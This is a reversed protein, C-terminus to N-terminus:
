ASGVHYFTPDPARHALFAQLRPEASFRQSAGEALGLITRRAEVTAVDLGLVGQHDPRAPEDIRLYRSGLQQEMVSVTLQQQVAIMTSILRSDTMWQVAGFQRGEAHSLAFETTTTGLSLVHIDKLRIDLNCVAEHVGCLDPANAALGGDAFLSSGLEAMPFITPAASTALAVEIMPYTHDRTYREHHATKFMQLQGRTMNVAPILLRRRSDALTRSQLLRQATRKLGADGYKPGNLFRKLDLLKAVKGRPKPRNSFIAEGDAEFAGLITDASIEAGLALALIGGISTGCILDFCSGIPRGAQREFDRLLRATYLGLYGGGSLALIQFRM